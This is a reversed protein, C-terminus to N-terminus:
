PKQLVFTVLSTTDIVDKVVFGLPETELACQLSNKDYYNVCSLTVDSVSVGRISSNVYHVSVTTTHPVQSRAGIKSVQIKNRDFTVGLRQLPAFSLKFQFEDPGGLEINGTKLRVELMLFDGSQMANKIRNLLTIEHSINGLTNGLFSFLNPAPRFDFLPRFSAIDEFNGEAVKIKLRRALDPDRSVTRVATSLMRPSVDIPYYYLEPTGGIEVLRKILGKLLVRDKQGNGPGLSIFDPSTGIFPNKLADLIRNVNKTFTTMSEHFVTYLPDQCLKLWTETGTETYYSYSCPLLGGSRVDRWIRDEVPQESADIYLTADVIDELVDGRDLRAASARHSFKQYALTREIWASFSNRLEDPQTPDYLLHRWQRTDFPLDSGKQAIIILEKSKAAALGFEFYVNQNRESAEIVVLDAKDIGDEIDKTIVTSAQVEDARVVDFGADKLCPRFVKRYLEEYPDRFPMVIFVNPM